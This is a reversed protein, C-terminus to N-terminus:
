LCFEGANEIGTPQHSTFIVMGNKRSQKLILQELDFASAKDLAVFPEDLLWLKKENLLLKSLSLRHKQGASLHSVPESSLDTLKFYDM